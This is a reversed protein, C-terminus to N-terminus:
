HAAGSLDGVQPLAKGVSDLAEPDHRIKANVRHGGHRPARRNKSACLANFCPRRRDFAALVTQLQVILRDARVRFRDDAPPNKTSGPRNRCPTGHLEDVRRHSRGPTASFYVHRGPAGEEGLEPGFFPTLVDKLNLQTVRDATLLLSRWVFDGVPDTEHNGLLNQNM